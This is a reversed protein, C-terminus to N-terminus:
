MVIFVHGTVIVLPWMVMFLVSGVLRGGVILILIWLVILWLVLFMVWITGVGWM